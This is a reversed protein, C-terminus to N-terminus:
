FEDVFSEAFASLIDAGRQSKRFSEDTLRYNAVVRQAVSKERLGLEYAEAFFATAAESDKRKEAVLGATLRGLAREISPSTAAPPEGSPAGGKAMLYALADACYSFTTSLGKGREAWASAEPYRGKMTLAALMVAIGKRANGGQKLGDEILGAVDDDGSRLMEEALKIKLTGDAPHQRVDARLQERATRGAKPRSVVSSAAGFRAIIVSPRERSITIARRIVASGSNPTIEIEHSGPKLYFRGIQFNAPLTRMSREDAKDTAAMSLALISLALGALQEETKDSEMLVAGGAYLGTQVSTKVIRRILSRKTREKLAALMDKTTDHFLFTQGITRGDVAVDTHTAGPASHVLRPVSVTFAGTSVWESVFHPSQGMLAIVVLEGGAGRYDPSKTWAMSGAAPLTAPLGLRSSMAKLDNGYYPAPAQAKALKKYDIMADNLHGLAEWIMASLYISFANDFTQEPGYIREVTTGLRRVEVLADNWRDLMIYNLMRLVPIMAIEYREGPYDRAEESWLTAATEKTISKAFLVDALNEAQELAKNSEDYNGAAQLIIGRDLLFLLRDRPAPQVKEILDRARDYDGAFYAHQAAAAKAQYGSACGCLAAFLILCLAIRGPYRRRQTKSM